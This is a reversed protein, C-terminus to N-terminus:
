IKVAFDVFSGCNRCVTKVAQRGRIIAQPSKLM